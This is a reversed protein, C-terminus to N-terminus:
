WKAFASWRKVFCTGTQIFRRFYQVAFNETLPFTLSFILVTCTEGVLRRATSIHLTATSTSLAKNSLKTQLLTKMACSDRTVKRYFCRNVPQTIPSDGQKRKNRKNYQTLSLFCFKEKNEKINLRCTKTSILDLAVTTSVSEKINVLEQGDNSDM